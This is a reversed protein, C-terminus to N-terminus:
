SNPMPCTLSLKGPGNRRIISCGSATKKTGASPHFRSVNSKYIDAPCTERRVFVSRFLIPLKFLERNIIIKSPPQRQALEFVKHGYGAYPILHYAYIITIEHRSRNSAARLLRSRNTYNNHYVKGSAIPGKKAPSQLRTIYKTAPFDQYQVM